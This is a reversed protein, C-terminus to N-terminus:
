GTLAAVPFWLACSAAGVVISAIAIRRLGHADRGTAAAAEEMPGWGLGWNAESQIGDGGFFPKGRNRRAARFWGAILALTWM